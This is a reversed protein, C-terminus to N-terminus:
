KEYPSVTVNKKMATWISSFNSEAPSIKNAKQFPVDIERAPSDM